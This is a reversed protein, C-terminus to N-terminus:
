LNRLATAIVGLLEHAANMKLVYAEAGLRMAANRLDGDGDQTVFVIKSKPCRQRIIKAAEIGNLSPMGIDLLIVDPQTETAKEIAEHGNCAEGVINWEPCTRLISRLQVRWGAFDDVLLIRAVRAM